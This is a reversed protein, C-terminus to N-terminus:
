VSTNWLLVWFLGLFIQIFIYCPFIIHDCIEFHLSSASNGAAFWALRAKIMKPGRNWKQTSFDFMEVNAHCKQYKIGGIVAMLEDVFVVEFMDGLDKTAWRNWCNRDFDLKEHIGNGKGGEKWVSTLVLLSGGISSSISTSSTSCLGLDPNNQSFCGSTQPRSAPAEGHTSDSFWSSEQLKTQM